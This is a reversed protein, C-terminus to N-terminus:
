VVGSEIISLTGQDCNIEAQAGYPVVFMPDTHGFDLNTVIPLERLGSEDRVVKLVAEDVAPNLSGCSCVPERM